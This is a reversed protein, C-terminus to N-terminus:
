LAGPLEPGSLESGGAPTAVEVRNRGLAKAAYLARDAKRVLHEPDAADDPLTAIGFSATLTGIDPLEVRELARRIKEALETAGRRDTGPLLLLFEEGGYRAAFDSARVSGQLVQGVTALARDGREHGHLDNVQKFHDLDLLVASLPAVTRGAHAAMRKLTEDAARRNPLGTLADSAARMEAVALNRQNGLIPAALAVSEHLLEAEADTIEQDRAVVVSGIVQGSVLLPECVVDAALQGCAECRLLPEDTPRHRHSQSLRVALCSRPKLSGTQLEALAGAGGSDSLHVELRDDSSNRNLVAAGSGRLSRQVHRMLLLQSEAESDSVQLLERLEQQRYLRATDRRAARRTLALGSIFLVVSLLVAVGVALWTALWLAHNRRMTLQTAFLNNLQRFEDMTAKSQVDTAVSPRQGTSLLRTIQASVSAHWGQFLQAQQDLSAQLPGDGASLARERALAALFETRGASFPALFRTQGTQFFGRAGTEQDLMGTLLTQGAQEQQGAHQASGREFAATAFVGCAILAVPVAILAAARRLSLGTM